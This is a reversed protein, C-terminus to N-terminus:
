KEVGLARRVYKRGQEFGINRAEYIASAIDDATQLPTLAGIECILAGVDGTRVEFGRGEVVFCKIETMTTKDPLNIMRM